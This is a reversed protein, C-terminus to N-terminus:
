GLHRIFERGDDAPGGATGARERTGAAAPRMSCPTPGHGAYAEMLIEFRGGARARPTLTVEPPRRWGDGSISGAERGNVYVLMEGDPRGCFVVRRGAAKAPIRVQGRFWGYEWKAGWTTGPPM